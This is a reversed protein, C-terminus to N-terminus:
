PHPPATRHRSLRAALASHQCHSSDMELLRIKWQLGISSVPVTGKKLPSIPLATYDGEPLGSQGILLACKPTIPWCAIAADHEISVQGPEGPVAVRVPADATIFRGVSSRLFAWPRTALKSSICKGIQIIQRAAFKRQREPSAEAFERWQWEVGSEQGDPSQGIVRRALQYCDGIVRFLDCWWAFMEPTRLYQTAVYPAIIEKEHERLVCPSDLRHLHPDLISELLALRKEVTQPDAFEDIAYMEHQCAVNRRSAVFTPRDDLPIVVVKPDSGRWHCEPIAFHSLQFRPVFHHRM